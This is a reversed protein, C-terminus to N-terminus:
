LELKFPLLPLGNTTYIDCIPESQYAYRIEKAGEMLPVLIQNNMIAVDSLPYFEHGDKSYAFGAYRESKSILNLFNNHTYLIIREEQKLYSYLTPCISNKVMKYLKELLINALRKSLFSKDQFCLKGYEGLDLATAVYIKQKDSMINSQILRLKFIDESNANPYEYGALQTIVFPLSTDKFYQRYAPILRRLSVGYLKPHYHDNEGQYLIIAKLSLPYIHAVMEKFFLSPFLEIDSKQQSKDQIYTKIPNHTELENDSLWSFISADKHACTIVGIPQRVSQYMDKAFLYTLASMHSLDEDGPINWKVHGEFYNGDNLYEKMNLFRIQSVQIEDEHYSEQLSMDVNQGGIFLFLDGILCNQMIVTQRRNSITFSFAQNRYPEPELEIMFETSKTKQKAVQNLFTVKLEIGRKCKGFIRIKKDAQFVMNDQFVPSLTFRQKM